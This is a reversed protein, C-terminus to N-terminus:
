IINVCIIIGSSQWYPNNIYIHTDLFAITDFIHNQIEKSIVHHASAAMYAYFRRKEEVVCPLHYILISLTNCLNIFHFFGNHLHCVKQIVGHNIQQKITMNDFISLFRSRLLFKAAIKGKFDLTDPFNWCKLETSPLILISLFLQIEM